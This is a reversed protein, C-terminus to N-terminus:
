AIEVLIAVQRESNSEGSTGDDSIVCCTTASRPGSASCLWTADANLLALRFDWMADFEPM